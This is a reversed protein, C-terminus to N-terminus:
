AQMATSPDRSGDLSNKIYSYCLTRILQSLFKHANVNKKLQKCVNEFSQRKKKLVKRVFELIACM